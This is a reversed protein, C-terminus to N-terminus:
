NLRTILEVKLTIRVNAVGSKILVCKEQMSMGLKQEHLSEGTMLRVLSILPTIKRHMHMPIVAAATLGQDRKPALYM